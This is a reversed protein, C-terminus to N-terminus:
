FFYIFSASMVAYSEIERITSDIYEKVHDIKISDAYSSLDNAAPDNISKFYEAASELKNYPLGQFSHYSASILDNGQLPQIFKYSLFCYFVITFEDQTLEDLLPLVLDLGNKLNEETLKFGGTMISKVYEVRFDDSIFAVVKDLTEETLVSRSIILDYFDNFFTSTFESLQTFGLLTAVKKISVMFYDKTFDAKGIVTKYNTNIDFGKKLDELM